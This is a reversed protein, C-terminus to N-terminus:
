GFGKNGLSDTPLPSPRRRTNRSVCPAIAPRMTVRDPRGRLPKTWHNNRTTTILPGASRVASPAAVVDPQAAVPPSEERGPGNSTRDVIWWGLRDLEADVKVM